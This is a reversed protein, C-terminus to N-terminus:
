TCIPQPSFPSRLAPTQWASQRKPSARQGSRPFNRSMASRSAAAGVTASPGVASTALDFNTDAGFDLHMDIDIDFERAMEFIRDIQGHPSSDTYPAAGVVSGGSKLAEVM